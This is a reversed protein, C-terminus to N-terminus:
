GLLGLYTAEPIEVEKSVIFGVSKQAPVIIEYDRPAASKAKVHVKIDAYFKKGQKVPNALWGYKWQEGWPCQDTM